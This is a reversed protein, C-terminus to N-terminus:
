NQNQSGSGTGTFKLSCDGTIKYIVSQNVSEFLEVQGSLETDDSSVGVVYCYATGNILLVEETVGESDVPLEKNLIEIVKYDYPEADETQKLILGSIYVDPVEVNILTVNCFPLESNGGSSAEEVRFSTDDRVSFRYADNTM